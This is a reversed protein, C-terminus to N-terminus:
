YEDESQDGTERDQAAEPVISQHRAIPPARPPDGQGPSPILLRVTQVSRFTVRDRECGPRVERGRDLAQRHPEGSNGPCDRLGPEGM